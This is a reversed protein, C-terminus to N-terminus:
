TIAIDNKSYVVISQFKHQRNNLNVKFGHIKLTNEPNSSAPGQTETLCIMYNKLLREDCNLDVLHKNLCRLNLFSITLSSEHLSENETISINSKSRMRNYEEIM